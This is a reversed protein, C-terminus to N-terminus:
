ETVMVRLNYIFPRATLSGTLALKVRVAAEALNTYRYQYEFVGDGLPKATGLQSVPLWTDGSDIGSVFVDVDSGSPLIADFIVTIDAGTADADFARTVYDATSQLSGAIIQTGPLLLASDSATARLKAKVGINGNVMAPAQIVQGSSASVTNGGPFTLEFESTAGASPQDAAALLLIDTANTVAVSGLDIVREAEQYEAALIRFAMDKDQHATWTSANSSSLLVGVQYPQSTVWTLANPDWKGLESVAIEGVADNCLVVIAYEVDPLLSIPAPFTWRNWANVTIESPHRQAEALITRTPFGVQTERIQVVFPTDGKATAFLEIAGIQKHSPLSFTQALPDIGGEAFMQRIQEVVSVERMTRTELYGQGFFNADGHSGASGTFKVSKIGSSVGAPVTFKGSVIGQSDAVLAM